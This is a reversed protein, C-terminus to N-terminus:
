FVPSYTSPAEMRHLNELFAISKASNHENAQVCFDRIQDDLAKDSRDCLYRNGPEFSASIASKITGMTNHCIAWVQGNEQEILIGDLGTARLSDWGVATFLARADGCTTIHIPANYDTYHIVFDNHENLDTDPQGRDLGEGREAWIARQQEFFSRAQEIEDQRFTKSLRCCHLRAKDQDLMSSRAFDTLLRQQDTALLANDDHKLHLMRGRIYVPYISGSDSDAYASAEHPCSTFYSAVGYMDGHTQSERFGGPMFDNIATKSRTGHFFMIPQENADKTNSDGLWAMLRQERSFDIQPAFVSKAQALDFIRYEMTDLSEGNGMHIAGDFGARSCCQVFEKDDLLPYADMYLQGLAEPRQALLEQVSAFDHAFNEHWNNTSLIHAQHKIAFKTVIERGLKDILEQMEAFCDPAEIIPNCIRLYAAYVHPTEPTDEINNPSRAYTSAVEPCACFTYSGLRSQPAGNFAGHEGRYVVLPQGNNDRVRTDALWKSLKKDTHM